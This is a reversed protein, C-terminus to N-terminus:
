RHCISCSTLSKVDHQAKLELGLELQTKGTEALPDWGMTFVASQPRLFKEPERHCELCWEMNLTNAKWMLPMQDVRGHCSECGVGKKIHISHDFYVFEPLDHIRVWELSKDDRYSARVPELLEANTWIQSHCSMCTKTPPVGASYSEEVTTHCYRCDIGLGNVHHQHSFPVPQEKPIELDTVWAHRSAHLAAYGAAGLFLVAAVLSVKSLSNFSKHFIQAM